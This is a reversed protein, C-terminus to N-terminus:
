AFAGALQKQEAQAGLQTQPAPKGLINTIDQSPMKAMAEDSQGPYRTEILKRVLFDASVLPDTRLLTYTSESVAREFDENKESMLDPDYRVLYKMKSFLHPNLVYIHETNKPFGTEALLELNKNELEEDTMKRGILTEDFIIKKSVKKGEVIQDSLVFKRYSTNGTIEDIEPITLHQLAIDAMLPWYETIGLAFNTMAGKLLTKAAQETRAVTFAKQSAEPLVGMKTDSITSETLSEEVKGIANFITSQNSPPLLPQVRTEPSQFAAVSGPFIIQTDVKDVGSIAIPMLTELIAKNMAVRTLEDLLANDWGTINMLSKFFFFHENVREYGLPVVNYKPADRNDRHRIPNMEINEDGMYIGGVFPIEVDEVRSYFIEEAVMTPHEEDKIDYFLGDDMSYVSRQGEQVYEWNEHDHYKAYLESKEVWRRKIISRQKQINQEYANPILVQNASYVRTQFGSFVEDLIEKKEMKGQENKRRIIQYIENFDAELYVAPNVLMGMTALIISKRYESNVTMWTTIDKMLYGIARDEEQAENQASVNAIAYQSTLHAHMAMAKKRALSRTGIWKWSEEASEVSEDVFANFTRQDKNMRDIVSYGNLEEWPKNLVDWGKGYEKQVLKTIDAVDSSPQFTSVPTVKNIIDGIM